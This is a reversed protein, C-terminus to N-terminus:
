MNISCMAPSLRWVSCGTYYMSISSKLPTTFSRLPRSAEPTAPKWGIRKGTVAIGNHLALDLIAALNFGAIGEAGYHEARTPLCTYVCGLGCWERAEEAPIGDNVYHSVINDDNQFLPIGGRTELNTQVAKRM